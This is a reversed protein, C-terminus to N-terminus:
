RKNALEKSLKESATLDPPAGISKQLATRLSSLGATAMGQGTMVPEPAPKSKSTKAAETKAAEAKAAGAKADAKAANAVADAKESPTMMVQATTRLWPQIDSAKPRHTEVHEIGTVTILLRSKDDSMVLGQQKLVWMMFGLQESDVKMVSEVQRLSIGPSITNAKRRHYLLTLLCTRRGADADLDDLFEQVPFSIETDEAGGTRVGDFAKRLHPDSLVEYAANLEAFKEKNGSSPNTPSYRRALTEYAAKIAAADAKSDVGLVEYHDSFKGALPASM